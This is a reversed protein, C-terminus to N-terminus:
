ERRLASALCVSLVLRGVVYAALTGFAIHAAAAYAFSWPEFPPLSPLAAAAAPITGVVLGGAVATGLLIIGMSRLVAVAMVQTPRAGLTLRIVHARREQRLAAAVGAAVGGIALLFALVAITGSVASRFRPQATADRVLQDIPHAATVLQSADVERIARQAPGALQLADGGSAELAIFLRPFPRHGFPIYIAGNPEAELGGFRVDGVVGVITAVSQRGTSPLRGVRFSRGLVDDTGFARRAVRQSVVVVPAAPAEDRAELLRGRVVRVGVAELYGASVPISDFTVMESRGTDPHTLPVVLEGMARRAPLATGYAARHVGPLQLLRDNLRRAFAAQEAPAAYETSSLGIEVILTNRADLGVDHALLANLAGAFSLAFFVLTVSLSVQATLVVHGWGRRSRFAISSIGATSDLRAGAAGGAVLTSAIIAFAGASLVTIYFGAAASLHPPPVIATSVLATAAVRTLWASTAWAAALGVIGLVLAERLAHRVLHARTAGLATRIAFERQRAMAHVLTAGLLNTVSVFYLLAVIGFLMLLPERVDRGLAEAIPVLTFPGGTTLGTSASLQALESGATERAIGPRLRAVMGFIGRERFQASGMRRAMDVPIWADTSGTLREAREDVIGVATFPIGNLAIALDGSDRSGSMRRKFRSSLVIVPSTEEDVSWTRGEMATVSLTQFYAHSVAAVRVLAAEGAGSATYRMVTYLAARELTTGKATWEEFQPLTVAFGPSGPATSADQALVVVLSSAEGYPLPRILGDYVTNFVVGNVAIGLVFTVLVAALFVPRHLAGRVSRWVRTM